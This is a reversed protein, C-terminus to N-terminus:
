EENPRDDRHPITGGFFEKFEIRFTTIAPNHERMIAWPSQQGPLIPNYSILGLDSSIPTGADDYWLIVVNINELPEGSINEVFGECEVYPMEIIETNINCEGSILALKEVSPKPTPSLRPTPTWIPTMEESLEECALMGMPLLLAILSALVILNRSM